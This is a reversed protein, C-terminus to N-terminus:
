QAVWAALKQKIKNKERCLKRLLLLDCAAGIGAVLWKGWGPFLLSLLLEAVACLLVILCIQLAGIRNWLKLSAPDIRLLKSLCVERTDADPEVRCSISFPLNESDSLNECFGFILDLTYVALFLRRLGGDPQWINEKCLEFGAGNTQVPVRRNAKLEVYEPKEGERNLFFGVDLDTDNVITCNAPM